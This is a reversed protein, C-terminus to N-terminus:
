QTTNSSFYIYIVMGLFLSFYLLIGIIGVLNAYNLLVGFMACLLSSIMISIVAGYRILTLTLVVFIMLLVGFWFWGGVSDNVSGLLGTANTILLPDM